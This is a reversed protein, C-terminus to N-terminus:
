FQQEKSVISFDSVPKPQRNSTDIVEPNIMSKHQDQFSTSTPYRAEQSRMRM